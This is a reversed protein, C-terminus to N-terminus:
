SNRRSREPAAEASRYDLIMDAGESWGLEKLRQMMLKARSADEGPLLALYGLRVPKTSSKAATVFPWAPAGAIVAIVQRRHM